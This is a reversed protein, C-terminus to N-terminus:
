IKVSLDETWVRAQGQVSIWRMVDSHRVRLVCVTSGM